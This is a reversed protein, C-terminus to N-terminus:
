EKSAEVMKKLKQGLMNLEHAAKEVQKTGAVNQQAAQKVSEMASAIQNTGVLQQQSSAAILLAAQAAEALSDTLKKISEGADSAQKSGADVAKSVQETMMVAASTAKQIDNLITRVQKTALKSQEALSKVEQAVVAFGKGQEGAKAAEIAANVALLNSQEALDNVTTTIEGIAQTQESLKVISEAVLEAQKKIQDIRQVTEIVALKGQQAVSAMKQATDSVNKAKESSLQATQKVEETTTTTETVSSATESASAALQTTLALIENGSSSIVNVADMIEVAQEKLREKMKKHEPLDRAAAFVGQVEGAENKYVVANYLVDTVKGSNHRLTLPYDRVSGKSFAQQYGERAKDSETFYNSFDSGILLERSVGTVLETAKNVDMLKGEKSITVLPDLGAEFLSRSYLSTARSKEEAIDRQIERDKLQKGISRTLYIGITLSSIFALVSVFVMLLSFRGINETLDTQATDVSTKALEEFRDLKLTLEDTLPRVEILAIAAAETYNGKEELSIVKEIAPKIKMNLNSIENLLSIREELGAKHQDLLLNKRIEEIYTDIAKFDGQLENMYKNKEEPYLILGRLHGIQDRNEFNLAKIDQIMEEDVDIFESYTDQLMNASYFGTGVAILMLALVIAYGSIIKTGVSMNEVKVSLKM